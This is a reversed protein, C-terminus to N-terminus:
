FICLQYKIQKLLNVSTFIAFQSSLYFNLMYGWKHPNINQNIHQKKM